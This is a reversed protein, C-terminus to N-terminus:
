QSFTCPFSFNLDSGKIINYSEFTITFYETFVKIWWMQTMQGRM